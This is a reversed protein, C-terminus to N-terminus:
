VESETSGPHLRFNQMELVQGLIVLNISLIKVLYCTYMGGTNSPLEERQPRLIHFFTKPTMLSSMDKRPVLKESKLVCTRPMM